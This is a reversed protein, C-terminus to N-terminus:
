KLPTSAQASAKAIWDADTMKDINKAIVKFDSATIAEGNKKETKDGKFVVNLESNAESGSIAHNVSIQRYQWETIVHRIDLTITESVKDIPTFNWIIGWFVKGDDLHIKIEERGSIVKLWDAPLTMATSPLLSLFAASRRPIRFITNKEGSSREIM